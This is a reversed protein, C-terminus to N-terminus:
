VVLLRETLLGYFRRPGPPADASAEFRWGLFGGCGGCGLPRWAYGEFWTDTRSSHDAPRYSQCTALTVIDCAIGHPNVYSRRPERGLVSIQDAAEALLERCYVCVYRSSQPGSGDKGRAIFFIWSM